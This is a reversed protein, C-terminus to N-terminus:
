ELRRLPTRAKSKSVRCTGINLNDKLDYCNLRQTPTYRYRNREALEGNQMQYRDNIRTFHKTFGDNSASNCSVLLRFLLAVEFVEAANNNKQNRLDNQYESDTM